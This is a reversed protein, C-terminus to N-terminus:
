STSPSTTSRTRTSRSCSTAPITRSCTSSRAARMARRISAAAPVVEGVKHRLYPVEGTTNTYASSTFLGVIRLEGELRGDGDFLKVGVYDLHARRHVRSKVNAKTIILAQPRALFARIEPTMVVLERGRRLVRVSPIACSASARARWRIPPPTAPPLRYERLGLFTFNDRAIWDLFAIAENVEDDPLPPPNPPLQPRDRDVPRAHGALRAGGRAVDTSGACPRSSASAPTPDDIRDLHIHIFSERKV